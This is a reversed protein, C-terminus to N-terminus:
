SLDSGTTLEEVSFIKKVEIGVVILIFESVFDNQYKLDTLLNKPKVFEFNQYFIRSFSYRSILILIIIWTPKM